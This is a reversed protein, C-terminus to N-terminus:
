MDPSFYLDMGLDVTVSGPEKSTQDTKINITRVRSLRPLAETDRIFAFINAFNGQLELQIPYLSFLEYRKPTDPRYQPKRLQTGQSIRTVDNIFGAVDMDKPLKKSGDLRLRLTRVERAVEPLIRSKASNDSLEQQMGAIQADLSHLRNTTPRYGLLYFGCGIILLLGGLSLQARLCWRIQKKLSVM